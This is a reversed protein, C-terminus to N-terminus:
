SVVQSSGFYAEIVQPDSQVTAPPGEAIVRGENMVTVSDAVGMVLAMNHDVVLLTLGARRVGLLMAGLELTEADNMGAGPEDLLLLDAGSMLARGLDLHKQAALPLVHAPQDAVHDLGVVELIARARKVTRQQERFAKPLWLSQAVYGARSFRYGGILVNELVTLGPFVRSTQFTRFLGLRAIVDPRLASIDQGHLEVRGRDSRYLNTVLNFLTSKGAGNPGILATISGTAVEISVDDVALVGGFAKSVGEVRLAPPVNATEPGAPSAPASSTGAGDGPRHVPPARGTRDNMAVVASRSGAASEQGTGGESGNGGVAQQQLSLRPAATTSTGRAAETITARLTLGTDPAGASALAAAGVASGALQLPAETHLGRDASVLRRQVLGVASRVATLAGGYLGTPLYRLFFVLLAGDVLPEYNQLNQAVEPFFTLLTTGILPGALTGSGGVVLMTILELSMSSGVMTPAFYRFYCAYLTGAVSAMVASIVFVVVKNKVLNLGLSRTGIDDSHMAWLMRGRNSRLINATVLLAAGVLVWILFYFHTDTGFTLGGVSFSPIGAIGSPGGTFSFGTALSEVLVGFILTVIALYMGRVRSGALGLVAAVAASLAVGALLALVPPWGHEVMLVSSTYGGVAMFAAQGLSVQGAVGTLLGLGVITLCFIGTINIARMDGATSVLFPLAIMAAAVAATGVRSSRAGMRVPLVIRGGRTEAVDARGGRVRGLLGQPRWVLLLILLGLSIATGFSDSVYGGVLAEVVGLVLGGAGAGFVSGLGGLTVAIVGFNTYSAMSGFTLSTLPLIVAGAIVGLVASLCFSLLVTREASIGMLRAARQNEATGRFAMGMKTKNLFLWIGTVCVVAVAAVWIDQTAIDVGNVSLPSSGSFPSLTYPTTGWILFAVGEYATLMGGLLMLLNTHSVRKSAPRIILWETAAMVVTMIALSLLFAVILPLKGNARLSYMVLAGMAVFAGQALNLVKTVNFVLSFGIALLGYIAGTVLGGILINLFEVM